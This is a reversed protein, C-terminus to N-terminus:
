LAAAFVGGAKVIRLLVEEDSLRYTGDFLVPVHDFANGRKRLNKGLHALNPETGQISASTVSLHKQNGHDELRGKHWTELFKAATETSVFNIFAYPLTGKRRHTTPPTYLYDFSGDPIWEELLASTDYTAPINRVCLTTVGEPLLPAPPATSTPASTSVQDQSTTSSWGCPEDGVRELSAKMSIVESELRKCQEVEEVLCMVIDTHMSDLISQHQRINAIRQMLRNMYDGNDKTPAHMM